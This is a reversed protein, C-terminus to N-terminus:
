ISDPHSIIISTANGGFGTANIMVKKVNRKKNHIVTNYPFGPSFNNKLCLLGLELNLSPSAAYTHGIKWKNTFINPFDNKFINKVANLEAEDGKITGPSHLLLLDISNDTIMNEMAMKMSASLLSGNESIGTLSPPREFSFGVSEIIALPKKEKIENVNIKEIAVVSAGEGLVFTNVSKEVDALPTCPYKNKTLKSYIGLAEVQALTFDTLPAESGGAIFRNAMGAKIWAIANCIAQIGTSCTVSTNIVPGIINLYSAVQNSVYSLTTLPSTYIDTKKDANTLFAKHLKEFLETSGRSSGINIGTIKGPSAGWGSENFATSSAQIAMLVTKDINRFKPNDRKLKEIQAEANESLAGVAYPKNNFIKNVLCSENNLYKAYIAEREFGLASISGCATIVIIENKDNKSIM